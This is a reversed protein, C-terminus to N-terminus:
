TGSYESEIWFLSLLRGKKTNNSGGEYFVESSKCIGKGKLWKQGVYQSIFKIIKWSDM